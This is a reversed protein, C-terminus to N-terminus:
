FQHENIFFLRIKYISKLYDQSINILEIKRRSLTLESSAVDSITKVGLSFSSKNAKNQELASQYSNFLANKRSAFIIIQSWTNTFDNELKLILAETDVLSTEYTINAQRIAASSGGGSYIPLIYQFGLQRNKYQYGQTSTADNQATNLAALLDLTPKHDAQAIKVKELQMIEQLKSMQIEVSRELLTTWIVTKEDDAYNQVPKISLTKDFFHAAQLKTLKEFIIQKAKLVSISQLHVAKALEYQADAEMVADKTSDGQEFKSREQIAVAQTFPLSKESEKAIQQAGLLDVWANFVKSKLEFVDLKYRLAAYEAQLEAYRLSSLERPRMLAQRMVLQHNISPGTFSRSVRGISSLDQTTTQTLQSSSGQLSIQPLLRSRAIAVNEQAALQNLKSSRLLPSSKIASEIADELSAANTSMCASFLLVLLFNYIRMRFEMNLKQWNMM